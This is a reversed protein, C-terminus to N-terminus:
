FHSKHEEFPSEVPEDVFPEAIDFLLKERFLPHRRVNTYIGRHILAHCTPCLIVLNSLENHERNEDMHHVDLIVPYKFYKTGKVYRDTYEKFGCICCKWPLQSFAIKRYGQVNTSNTKLYGKRSGIYRCKDSCYKRKGYAEFVKGCTSCVHTNKNIPYQTDRYGMEILAKSWSGFEDVYQKFSPYERNCLFDRQKPIRGEKEVFTAVFNILEERSYRPRGYM